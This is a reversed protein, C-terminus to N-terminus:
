VNGSGLVGFADKGKGDEAVIVSNLKEGKKKGRNHYSNPCDRSFHDKSDCVICLNNIANYARRHAKEENNVPKRGVDKATWKTIIQLNNVQISSLDM